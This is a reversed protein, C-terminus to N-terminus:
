LKSNCMLIFSSTAPSQESSMHQGLLQPESITEVYPPPRACSDQQMFILMEPLAVSTYLPPPSNLIDAPELSLDVNRRMSCMEPKSTVESYPPPPAPFLGIDSLVAIGDMPHTIDSQGSSVVVPPLFIQHRRYCSCFGFCVVLGIIIVIWFWWYNWYINWSLTEEDRCCRTDNECCYSGVSCTLTECFYKGLDAVQDM